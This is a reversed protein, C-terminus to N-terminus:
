HSCMFDKNRNKWWKRLRKNKWRRKFFNVKMVIEKRLDTKILHIYTQTALSSSLYLNKFLECSAWSFCFFILCFNTKRNHLFFAFFVTSWLFIIWKTQQSKIIWSLRCVAWRERLGADWSFEHSIFIILNNKKRQNAHM